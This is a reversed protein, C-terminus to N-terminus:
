MDEVHNESLTSYRDLEDEIEPSARGTDHVLSSIFDVNEALRSFEDPHEKYEKRFMFLNNVIMKLEGNSGVGLFSLLNELSNDNKPWYDIDYWKNHVPSWLIYNRDEGEDKGTDRSKYSINVIRIYFNRTDYLKDKAKPPSPVYLQIHDKDWVSYSCKPYTRFPHLISKEFPVFDTIDKIYSTALFDQAHLLDCDKGGLQNKLIIKSKYKDIKQKYSM